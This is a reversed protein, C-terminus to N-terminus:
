TLEVRIKRGKLKTGHYANLCTKMRDYGEFELFAYGKSIGKKKDTIHRVSAPKVKFFHKEISDTSCSYPLNGVFVIFRSSKNPQGGITSEDQDDGDRDKAGDENEPSKPQKKSSKTQTDKSEHKDAKKSKKVRKAPKAQSDSQADADRNRKKSRKKETQSSDTELASKSM